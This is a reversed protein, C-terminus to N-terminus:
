MPLKNCFLYASGYKDVDFHGRSSYFDRWTNPMVDCIEGCGHRQSLCSFEFHWARKREAATAVPVLSSDLAFGLDSAREGMRVDNREISYSGSIRAQVARSEPLTKGEEAGFGRWQANSAKYIIGFSYEQVTGNEIYVFASGSWDSSVLRSLSPHKLVLRRIRSFNTPIMYACRDFYGGTCDRVGDYDNEYPVTGFKMAISQAAKYDSAGVRVEPYRDCDNTGAGRSRQQLASPM